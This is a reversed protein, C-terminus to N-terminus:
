PRIYTVPPCKFCTIVCRSAWAANVHIQMAMSESRTVLDGGNFIMDGTISTM